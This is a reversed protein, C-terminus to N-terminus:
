KILFRNVLPLGLGLKEDDWFSGFKGGRLDPGVCTCPWSWDLHVKKRAGTQEQCLRASCSGCLDMQMPYQEGM